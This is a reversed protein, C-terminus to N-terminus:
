TREGYDKVKVKSKVWYNELMVKLRAAYDLNHNRRNVVLLIKECNDISDCLLMQLTNNKYFDNHIEAEYKDMFQAPSIENAKYKAFLKGSPKLNTINCLDRHCWSPIEGDLFYISDFKNRHKSAYKRNSIAIMM